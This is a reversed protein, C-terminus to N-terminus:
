DTHLPLNPLSLPRKLIINSGKETFERRAREGDGGRGCHSMTNRECKAGSLETQRESFAHFLIKFCVCKGQLAKM